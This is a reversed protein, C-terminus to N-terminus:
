LRQATFWDDVDKRVQDKALGYRQQIKGELQDRHAPGVKGSRAKSRSGIEKSAIGTWSKKEETHGICRM